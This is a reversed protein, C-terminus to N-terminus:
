VKHSDSFPDFEAIISEERFPNVAQKPPPANFVSQTINANANSLVSYRDQTRSTDGTAYISQGASDMANAGNYMSHNLSTQKPLANGGTYSFPKSSDGFSTQSQHNYENRSVNSNMSPPTYSQNNVNSMSSQNNLNSMSSPNNLSQNNLNSMSSQTVNSLSHNFPNQYSRNNLNSMSMSPPTYSQNNLNSGNSMSRNFSNKSIDDGSGSSIAPNAAVADMLMECADQINGNSRSLAETVMGHNFGMGILMSTGDDLAKAGASAQSVHTYNLSHGNYPEDVELTSENSVLLDIALQMKGQTLQLSKRNATIDTFGMQQMTRLQGAYDEDPNVSM